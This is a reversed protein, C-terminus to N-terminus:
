EAKEVISKIYDHNFWYCYKKATGGHPNATVDAANKAKPRVHFKRHDSERYFYEPAIQNDKVANKINLWYGAAEDLDKVPMTWFFAKALRVQNDNGEQFVIFLFRGTFIDYLRSEYWDDEQLIDFYNINEFSM